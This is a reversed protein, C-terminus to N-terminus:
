THQEPRWGHGCGLRGLAIRPEMRRVVEAEDGSAVVAELEAARAADVSRDWEIWQRAAEM